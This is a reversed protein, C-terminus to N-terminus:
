THGGGERGNSREVEEEEKEREREREPRPPLFLLSSLEVEGVFPPSSALVDAGAAEGEGRRRRKPPEREREREGEGPAAEGVVIAAELGEVLSAALAEAAEGDGWEM